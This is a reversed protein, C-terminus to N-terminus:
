PRVIRPNEGVFLKAGIRNLVHPLNDVTTLKKAASPIGFTCIQSSRHGLVLQREIAIQRALIATEKRDELISFQDASGGIIVLAEAEGCSPLTTPYRLSLIDFLVAAYQLHALRAQKQPDFRFHGLSVQRLTTPKHRLASFVVAYRKVFICILIVSLLFKSSSLCYNRLQARSFVPLHRKGISLLHCIQLCFLRDM